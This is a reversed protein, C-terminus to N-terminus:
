FITFCSQEQEELWKMRQYGDTASWIVSCAYNVPNRVPTKGEERRSQLAQVYDTTVFDLFDEMYVGDADKELCLNLRDVIQERTLVLNSIRSCKQTCLRLMGKMVVAFAQQKEEDLYRSEGQTWDTGCLYRLVETVQEPHGLIDKPIGSCAQVKERLGWGDM